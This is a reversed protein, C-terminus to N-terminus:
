SAIDLETKLISVIQDEIKSTLSVEIERTRGFRGKSIVNANIIGFMDLEGIIDSIRRQTLPRLGAKDCLQKYLEYIEGTNLPTEDKQSMELIPYLTAQFQTPQTKVMDILRDREIKHEAQDINDVSVKTQNGREALEGAVRLLELARRADGHERAAYAACKPIVGEDLVNEAFADQARDRLIQQIEIANYPPFVIEEESLSSKVRPDLNNAFM